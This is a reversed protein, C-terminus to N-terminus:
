RPTTGLESKLRTIEAMLQQLMEAENVNGAAGSPSPPTVNGAVPASQQYLASHQIQGMQSGMPSPQAGYLPNMGPNVSQSPVMFSNHVSATNHMQDGGMMMSQQQQQQQVLFSPHIMASNGGMGGMMMAQKRMQQMRHVLHHLQKHEIGTGFSPGEVWGDLGRSEIMLGQPTNASWGFACVRQSLMRLKGVLGTPTTDKLFDPHVLVFDCGGLAMAQQVLMVTNDVGLAPVLEIPATLLSFQQRFFDVMTMDPICLIVRGAEIHAIDGKDNDVGADLSARVDIGKKKMNEAMNVFSDRNALKSTSHKVGDEDDEDVFEEVEVDEGGVQMITTKRIDGHILIHRYIQVRLHHGLLGWIQKSLVDAVTTTITSMYASMIGLGEPGLV